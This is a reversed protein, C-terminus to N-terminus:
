RTTTRLLSRANANKKSISTGLEKLKWLLDDLRNKMAYLQKNGRYNELEYGLMKMYQGALWNFRMHRMESWSSYRTLPNFDKSKQTGTWHLKGQQIKTDSSGFVEMSGATEFDFSQSNINLFEFVKNLQGKEDKFIDEYKLFLINPSNNYKDKLELIQKAGKVWNRTAKEYSWNFSRVGSEVVSRGDRTIVILYDNPFFNLFNSCNIVSPTKTVLIKKHVVSDHPQRFELHPIQKLQLLMYKRIGDGLNQLLTETPGIKQFVEWKPNWKKAVSRAYEELISSYQIFFDEWIPGPGVCQPHQTLLKFLYNTGSRQLIGLIFCIRTNNNQTNADTLAQDM